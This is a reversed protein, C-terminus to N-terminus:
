ATPARSAMGLLVDVGIPTGATVTSSVKARVYRKLGVYGVRKTVNKTTGSTRPTAAALGAAAETGLLYTDAVSTFDAATATDSEQVTVTFVANTATVTGYSIIFEVGDYGQRDVATGTKGTGTTGVTVPSINRIAFLNDHIDRSM